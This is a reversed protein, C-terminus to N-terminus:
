FYWGRNAEVKLSLGRQKVLEEVRNKQDNDCCAIQLIQNAAINDHVLAEAQYRSTKGIDDNDRTFDRNQLIKWDIGDLDRLDSSFKADLTSAHKDTFLFSVKAEQLKVLSAVLLVLEDNGRRQVNRGTKINYAMMSLPTFYFSVYNSLTGGPPQPVRWHHRKEILDPIGINVFKPDQQSSQRCHLGHDLIWPINDRHTIRFIYANEATLEPLAVTM